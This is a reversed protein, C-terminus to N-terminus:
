LINSKDIWSNESSSLGKYKSIRVYDGLKFKRKVNHNKVSRLYTQLIRKKSKNKVNTPIEGITRHYTHNYEYTVNNLTNSKTKIPFAWAYKSFTDIVTLIFRFNKNEKSVSQMDILEAQWLDDIDKTIVHRRPFNVRANRHIENVVDAKSM